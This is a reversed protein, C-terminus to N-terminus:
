HGNGNLLVCNKKSNLNPIRHTSQVSHQFAGECYMFNHMVYKREFVYLDDPDPGM